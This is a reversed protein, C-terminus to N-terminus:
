LCFIEVHISYKLEIFIFFFDIFHCINLLIDSNQFYRYENTCNKYFVFELVFDAPYINTCFAQTLNCLELNEPYSDTSTNPYLTM